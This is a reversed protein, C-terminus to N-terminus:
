PIEHRLSPSCVRFLCQKRQSVLIAFACGFTLTIALLSPAARPGEVMSNVVMSDKMSTM